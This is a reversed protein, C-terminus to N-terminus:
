AKAVEISFRWTDPMGPEAGGLVGHAEDNAADYRHAYITATSAQLWVRPPRVAAAIATAIARTSDVRSTLIERRNAQSYRCDVSRGALNIVVEAGDVEAAWASAPGAASRAAGADWAVTRWGQANGKPTRALVVVAHGASTFHRALMRGLQGSGGAIVVKM